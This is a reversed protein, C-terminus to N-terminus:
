GAEAAFREFHNLYSDLEDKGDAFMPLKPVKAQNKDGADAVPRAAAAQAAELRMREMAEEHQRREKEHQRDKEREQREKEREQREKEREQREEKDQERQKARDERERDLQEMVFERLEEDQYGMDEGIEKIRQLVTAM